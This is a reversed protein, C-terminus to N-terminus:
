HVLVLARIDDWLGDIFRNTITATSFKSDHALIQHVISDFHEIDDSVSETQRIRFFQRLLMSHQDKEFRECVVNCLDSWPLSHVPSDLSQAWFTANGIFRMSAVRSKLHDPVVYM